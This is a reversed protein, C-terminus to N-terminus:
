LVTHLNKMVYNIKKTEHGSDSTINKYKEYGYKSIYDNSYMFKFGNTSDKRGQACQIIYSRHIKTDKVADSVAEYEEIFHGNMDFKMISIMMAENIRFTTFCKINRMNKM